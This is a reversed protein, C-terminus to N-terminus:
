GMLSNIFILPVLYLKDYLLVRCECGVGEMHHVPPGPTVLRKIGTEENRFYPYYFCRGGSTM